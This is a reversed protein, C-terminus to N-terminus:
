IKIIFNYFGKKDVYGTENLLKNYKLKSIVIFTVLTANNSDDFAIIIKYYNNDLHVLGCFRNLKSIQFKRHTLVEVCLKDILKYMETDSIEFTGLREFDRDSSHRACTFQLLGLKKSRPLNDITNIKASPFGENILEEMILNYIELFKTM